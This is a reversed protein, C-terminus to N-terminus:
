KLWVRAQGGATTMPTPIARGDPLITINPGSPRRTIIEVPESRELIEKLYGLPEDHTYFEGKAWAEQAWRCDWCIPWLRSQAHQYMWWLRLRRFPVTM